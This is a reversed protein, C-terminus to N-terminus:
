ALLSMHFLRSKFFSAIVMIKLNIYFYSFIFVHLTEKIVSVPHIQVTCFWFLMHVYSFNTPLLHFATTLIKQIQIRKLIKSGQITKHRLHSSVLQALLIKIYSCLETEKLSAWPGHDQVLFFYSCFIFLFLAM